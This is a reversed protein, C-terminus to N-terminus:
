VGTAFAFGAGPGPTEAALERPVTSASDDHGHSGLLDSGPSHNTNQTTVMTTLTARSTMLTSPPRYSAVTARDSRTRARRSEPGIVNTAGQLSHAILPRGAHLLLQNVHRLLPMSSRHANLRNMEVGTSQARPACGPTRTSSTRPVIGMRMLQGSSRLARGRGATSATAAHVSCRRLGCDGFHGYPCRTSLEDVFHVVEFFGVVVQLNGTM